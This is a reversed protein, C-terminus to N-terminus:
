SPGEIKALAARLGTRYVAESAADWGRLFAAREAEGLHSVDPRGLVYGDSNTDQAKRACAVLEAVAASAQASLEACAAVKSAAYKREIRREEALASDSALVALVNVKTRSM